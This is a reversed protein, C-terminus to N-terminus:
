VALHICPFQDLVISGDVMSFAAAAGFKGPSNESIFFVQFQIQIQYFLMQSLRFSGSFAEPEFLIHNCPFRYSGKRCNSQENHCYDVQQVTPFLSKYFCIARGLKWTSPCNLKYSLSCGNM